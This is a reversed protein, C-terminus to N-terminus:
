EKTRKYKKKGDVRWSAGKGISPRHHTRTNNKVTKATKVVCPLGCPRAKTAVTRVNAKRRAPISRKAARSKTSRMAARAPGEEAQSRPTMRKKIKKTETRP